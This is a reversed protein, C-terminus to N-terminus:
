GHSGGNSGNLSQRRSKAVRIPEPAPAERLKGLFRKRSASMKERAAQPKCEVDPFFSDALGAFLEKKAERVALALAWPTVGAKKSAKRMSMNPYKGMLFMLGAQKATLRIKPNTDFLFEMARLLWAGAAHLPVSREMVSNHPSEPEDFYREQHPPALCLTSGNHRYSDSSFAGQQFPENLYTPVIQRSM